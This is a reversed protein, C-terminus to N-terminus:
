WNTSIMAPPNPIICVVDIDQVDLCLTVKNVVKYVAIDMTKRPVRDAKKVWMEAKHLITSKPLM